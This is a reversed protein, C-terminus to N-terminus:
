SHIWIENKREIRRKVNRIAIHRESRYGGNDTEKTWAMRKLIMLEVIKRLLKNKRILAKM